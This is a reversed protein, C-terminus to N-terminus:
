VLVDCRAASTRSGKRPHKAFAPSLAQIRDLAEREFVRDGCVPCEYFSLEPVVYTQGKYIGAWDHCVKKIQDSGCTPCRAIKVNM